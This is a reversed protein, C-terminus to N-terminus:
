VGGRSCDLFIFYCRCAFISAAIIFYNIAGDFSALNFNGSSGLSNRSQVVLPALTDFGLLSSVNGLTLDSVLTLVIRVVSQNLVSGHQNSSLGVAQVLFGLGTIQHDGSNQNQSDEASTSAQQGALSCDSKSTVYGYCSPSPLETVTRNM